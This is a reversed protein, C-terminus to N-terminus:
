NNKRKLGIEEKIYEVYDAVEKSARLRHTGYMSKKSSKEILGRKELKKLASIVTPPSVKLLTAFTGQSAVCYGTKKSLSIITSMLLSELPKLGFRVTLGHYITSYMTTKGSSTTVTIAKQKDMNQGENNQTNDEYMESINSIHKM